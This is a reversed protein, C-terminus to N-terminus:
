NLNVLDALNVRVNDLSSFSPCISSDDGIDHVVLKTCIVKTKSESKTAETANEMKSAIM